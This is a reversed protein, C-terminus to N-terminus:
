KAARELCIRCTVRALQLTRHPGRRVRGGCMVRGFRLYAQSQGELLHVVPEQPGSCRLAPTPEDEADEDFRIARAAAKQRRLTEDDIAM